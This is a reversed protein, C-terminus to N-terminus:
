FSRLLLLLLLLLLNYRAMEGGLSWIEAIINM